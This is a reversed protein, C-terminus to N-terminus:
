HSGSSDGEQEGDDNENDDDADHQDGDDCTNMLSQGEEDNNNGDREEVENECEVQASTGSVRVALQLARGDHLNVAVGTDVGAGQIRLRGAGVPLNKLSFRGRSDVMTAMGTGALSVRM